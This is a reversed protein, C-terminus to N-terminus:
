LVACQCVISILNWMVFHIAFFFAESSIITHLKYMGEDYKYINFNFEIVNPSNLQFNDNGYRNISYKNNWVFIGKWFKGSCNESSFDVILIIKIKIRDNRYTKQRVCNLNM